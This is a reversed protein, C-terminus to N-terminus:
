EFSKWNKHLTFLMSGIEETKTILKKHARQDIYKCDLAFSLWNQTESNSGMASVLHQKFVNEYERKAWGEAINSSISRSSRVVQSTLSYLEEKPFGRTTQFIDMALEYSARYVHLDKFHKIM